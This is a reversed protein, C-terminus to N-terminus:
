GRLLLGGSSRGSRRVGAIHTSPVCFRRALVGQTDVLRDVDPIKDGHKKLLQGALDIIRANYTLDGYQLLMDIAKELEAQLSLDVGTQAVKSTEVLAETLWREVDSRRQAANLLIQNASKSVSFRQGLRRVISEFEDMPFGHHVLRSLMSLVSMASEMDFTTKTFDRSI